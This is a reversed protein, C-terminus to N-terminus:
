TVNTDCATVDIVDTTTASDVSTAVLSHYMKTLLILATSFMAFLLNDNTHQSKLV